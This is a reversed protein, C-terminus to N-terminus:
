FFRYHRQKKSDFRDYALLSRVSHFIAYYSRNVSQAYHNNNFLLEASALDDLAKELRYRSLATIREDMSKSGM